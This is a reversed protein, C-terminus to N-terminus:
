SSYLRKLLKILKERFTPDTATKSLGMPASFMQPARIQIKKWVFNNRLNDEAM